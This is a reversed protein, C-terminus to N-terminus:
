RQRTSRRPWSRTETAQERLPWPSSSARRSSCSSPATMYTASSRAGRTTARPSSGPGRTAYRSWAPRCSQLSAATRPPWCCRRLWRTACAPTSPTSGSPSCSLSRADKLRSGYCRMTPYTSSGIRTTASTPGPRTGGPSSLRQIALRAHSWRNSTVRDSRTGCRWCCIPSTPEAPDTPPSDPPMCRRYCCWRRM